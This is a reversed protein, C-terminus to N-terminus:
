PFLPPTYYYTSDYLSGTWVTNATVDDGKLMEPMSGPLPMTDDLTRNFWKEQEGVDARDIQFQWTGSLDISSQAMLGMLSSIATILLVCYKKM